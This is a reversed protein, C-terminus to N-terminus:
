IGDVLGSEAALDHEIDVAQALLDRAGKRLIDTLPDPSIWAPDAFELITDDKM